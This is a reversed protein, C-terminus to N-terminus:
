KGEDTVHPCTRHATVVDTVDLLVLLLNSKAKTVRVVVIDVCGQKKKKRNKMLQVCILVKEVYM